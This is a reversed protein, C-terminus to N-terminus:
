NLTKLTLKLLFMTDPAVDRDRQFTRFVGFSTAVCNHDYNLVASTGVLGRENSIKRKTLIKSANLGLNLQQNINISASASIYKQKKFRVDDRQDSAFYNTNFSMKPHNVTFGAENNHWALNESDLRFRYYTEFEPIPKVNLSGVYDSHRSRLGSVVPLKRDTKNRMARGFLASFESDKIKTDFQVGFSGRLGSEVRDFGPYRNESFLNNTSLEPNNSDENPIKDPNNGNPSYAALLKPTITIYDNYFPNEWYMKTAPMLRGTYGELYPTGSAFKPNTVRRVHYADGRIYNEFEFYSGIETIYSKTFGMTLSTRQIEALNTRMLNLVNFKMYPTLSNDAIEIDDFTRKYNAYPYIKPMDNFESRLDQFLMNKILYHENSDIKEFDLESTLYTDFNGIDYRKLYTKDYTRRYNARMVWDKGLDHNSEFFIHSKIQRNVRGDRKPNTISSNVNYKSSHTIARFNTQLLPNQETFYTAYITADMNPAINYYYPATISFGRDLSQTYSPVLFGSKRKANPTSHSFYPTYLVPKGYIELAANKHSIKEAQQDILTEDARIQWLPYGSEVRCASYVSKYLKTQNENIKVAKNSAVIANNKLKISLAKVLGKSMNDTLEMYDAFGVNGNADVLIVNGFAEAKDTKKSYIVKDANLMYTGSVFEVRGTAIAVSNEQDYELTDANIVIESETKFEAFSVASITIGLIIYLIIKM